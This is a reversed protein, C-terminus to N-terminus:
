TAGRFGSYQSQEILTDRIISSPELYHCSYIIKLPSVGGYDKQCPSCCVVGERKEAAGSISKGGNGESIGRLDDDFRFGYCNEISWVKYLRTLMAHMGMMSSDHTCRKPMAYMM